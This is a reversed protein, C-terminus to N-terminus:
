PLGAKDFREILSPKRQHASRLEAMRRTFAATDGGRRSIEELNALLTVAADYHRATKAAILSNVENWPREGQSALEDLRRDRERRAQQEHRARQEALERQRARERAEAREAAAQLLARVTRTGRDQAVTRPRAARLLEARVHPDDDSLLRRLAEDRQGTTLGKIWRDIATAANGAENDATASAEIAVELLDADVRLFDALARQAGTLRGLGAPVPPELVDGDDDEDNLGQLGGYRDATLAALWGLYLPRLDGAALEARVGVLAGLPGPGGDVWDEEGDEDESRWELVTNKGSRRAAATEGDCYKPATSLDLLTSPLRLMLIRTGWNAFYLHADYYRDMLAAPDGRFDGWQYENVFRTRSIQARTSLARVQGYEADTLPRDLALFEYYQYESV